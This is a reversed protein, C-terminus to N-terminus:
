TTPLLDKWSREAGPKVLDSQRFVSGDPTAYQGTAPDYTAIAVSPGTPGGTFASPAVGGGSDMPALDPVPAPPPADAPPVPAAAPALPAEAPPAPVAPAPGAPRPTGQLPGYINDNFTM